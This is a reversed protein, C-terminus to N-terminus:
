RIHSVTTIYKSPPKKYRWKMHGKNDALSSKIARINVGKYIPNDVMQASKISDLKLYKDALKKIRDPSQLYALEAKLIYITDKEQEIQRELETYHIRLDLVIQKISLVAYVSVILLVIGILSLSRDRM